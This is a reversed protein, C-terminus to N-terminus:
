IALLMRMRLYNWWFGKKHTNIVSADGGENVWKKINEYTHVVVFCGHLSAPSALSLTSNYDM